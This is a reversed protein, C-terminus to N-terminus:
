RTERRVRLLEEVVDVVADIDAQTVSTQSITPFLASNYYLGDSALLILRSLATDHVEENILAMWHTELSAIAESAEPHQGSQALRAVAIFARDFATDVVTSSRLFHRVIGEPASRMQEADEITLVDLRELLGAVLDAKSAFHYLLGGKSVGADAAVADLTAAREGREIIVRQFADLVSEKASIKPVM